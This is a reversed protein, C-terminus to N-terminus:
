IQGLGWDSILLVGVIIWFGPQIYTILINIFPDPAVFSLVISLKFNIVLLTYAYLPM